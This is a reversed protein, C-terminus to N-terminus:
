LWKSRHLWWAVGGILVVLMVCFATFRLSLRWRSNRGPQRWVARDSISPLFVMAMLSMTYTRRALSEQMVQAIEDAMVATRAICSDIEDLRAGATPLIRCEAGSITM